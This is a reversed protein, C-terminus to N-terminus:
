FYYGVCSFLLYLSEGNCTIEQKSSYLEVFKTDCLVPPILITLADNYLAMAMPDWPRVVGGGGGGGGCISLSFIDQSKIFFCIIM